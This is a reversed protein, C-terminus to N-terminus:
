PSPVPAPILLRPLAPVPVPGPERGHQYDILDVVFADSAAETFANRVAVLVVARAGEVQWLFIRQEPLALNYTHQHFLSGEDEVRVLHYQGRCRCNGDWLPAP